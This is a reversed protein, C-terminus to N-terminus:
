GHVYCTLPHGRRARMYRESASRLNQYVDKDKVLLVFALNSEFIVRFVPAYDRQRRIRLRGKAGGFQCPPSRADAYEILHLFQANKRQDNINVQVSQRLM